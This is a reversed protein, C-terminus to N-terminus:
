ATRLALMRPNDILCLLRASLELARFPMSVYDDIGGSLTADLEDETISPTLLVTPVQATRRESRLRAAFEMATMGPLNWDLLVADARKRRLRDLAEEASGVAEADFGLSRLIGRVVCLLEFSASAVLVRGGAEVEVTQACACGPCRVSEAKDRRAFSDLRLWDRPTL